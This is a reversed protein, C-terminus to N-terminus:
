LWSPLLIEYNNLGLKSSFKQLVIIFLTITIKLVVGELNSGSYYANFPQTLESIFM